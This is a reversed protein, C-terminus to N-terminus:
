TRGDPPRDYLSYLLGTQEDRGVPEFSRELAEALGNQLEPWGLSEPPVLVFELGDEGRMGRLRELLAGSDAAESRAIGIMRVGEVPPPQDGDAVLVAIGANWPV